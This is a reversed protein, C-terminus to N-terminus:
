FGVNFNELSPKMISEDICLPIACVWWLPNTEDEVDKKKARIEVHAFGDNGKYFQIDTLIYNEKGILYALKGLFISCQSEIRAIEM